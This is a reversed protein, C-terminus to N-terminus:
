TVPFQSFAAAELGTPTRVDFPPPAFSVRNPGAAPVDNLRLVSVVNDMAAATTIEQQWGDLVASWNNPNLDLDRVLPRNFTILIAAGGGAWTASM